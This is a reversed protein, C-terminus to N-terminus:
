LMQDTAKKSSDLTSIDSYCCNSITVTASPRASASDANTNSANLVQINQQMKEGKVILQQALVGAFSKVPISRVHDM